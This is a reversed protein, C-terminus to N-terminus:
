ILRWNRLIRRWANVARQAIDLGDFQHGNHDITLTIRWGSGTACDTGSWNVIRPLHGSRPPRSLHRHKTLNALDCLLALDPDSDIAAEIATKTIGIAASAVKLDDKLHYANVYFSELRRRAAHIAEGSV